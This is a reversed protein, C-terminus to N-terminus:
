NLCNKFNNHIKKFKMQVAKLLATLDSDIEGEIMHNETETEEIIMEKIEGETKTGIMEIIKRKGLIPLSNSKTEVEAPTLDRVIKEKRSKRNKRKRAKLFLDVINESKRKKAEREKKRRDAGKVLNTEKNPNSSAPTERKKKAESKGKM